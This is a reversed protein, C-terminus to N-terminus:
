IKVAQRALLKWKGQQKQWILLVKLNVAGVKGNDNTEGTLKHRVIAVNETIKVTQETLNIQTFDSKGSVIKEVFTNKDEILGSSHGYSLDEATLNELATKNAEIMAVRLAEVAAKVNDEDSTQAISAALTAFVFAVSALVKKKM